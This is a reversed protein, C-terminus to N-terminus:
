PKNPYPPVSDRLARSASWPGDVIMRAKGAQLCPMALERGWADHNVDAMWEGDIVIGKEM